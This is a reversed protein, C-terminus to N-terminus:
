PIIRIAALTKVILKAEERSYKQSQAVFNAAFSQSDKAYKSRVLEIALLPAALAYGVCSGVLSSGMVAFSLVCFVVWFLTTSIQHLRRFLLEKEPYNRHTLAQAGANLALAASYADVCGFVDPSLEVAKKVPNYANKLYDEGKEAAVDDMGEAQLFEQLITEANVSTPTKGARVIQRKAILIMLGSIGLALAAPIAYICSQTFTAFLAM